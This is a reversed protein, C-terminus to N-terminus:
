SHHEGSIKERMTVGRGGCDSCPFAIDEKADDDYETIEGSGKCTVCQIEEFEGTALLVARPSAAPMTDNPRLIKDVDFDDAPPEAKAQRLILAAGNALTKADRYKRYDQVGAPDVDTGPTPCWKELLQYGAKERLLRMETYSYVRVPHPVGNEIVVGGPIEDQLYNLQNGEDKVMPHPCRPHDGVVRRKGCAVCNGDQNMEPFM